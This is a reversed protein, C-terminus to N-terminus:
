WRSVWPSEFLHALQNKAASFCTRRMAIVEKEWLPNRMVHYGHDLVIKLAQIFAEKNHVICVQDAGQIPRPFFITAPYNTTYDSAPNSEDASHHIVELGIGRELAENIGKAVKKVRLSANGFDTDEASYFQESHNYWEALQPHIKAKNLIRSKFVHHGVDKIPINDREDLDGMSPSVFLLDYDAVIPKKVQKSALVQIPQKDAGFIAYNGGIKKAFFQYEKGSPGLSTMTIEDRVKEVAFIIRRTVLEEYRKQSIMLDVVDAVEKDIVDKVQKAFKEILEPRTELKSLSQNIPIFGAMPGWNSSKGKIKFSKTPYGEELLTRALPEVPRFGIVINEKEVFQFIKRIHEAPIGQQPHNIVDELQQEIPRQEKPHPITAHQELGSMGVDPVYGIMPHGDCTGYPGREESPFPAADPRQFRFSCRSIYM